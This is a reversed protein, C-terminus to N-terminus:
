LESKPSKEVFVWVKMVFFSMVPVAGAVFLTAVHTLRPHYQSAFQVVSFSIALGMISMISFKTFQSLRASRVGFTLKSQGLYSVVMGGLYAFVSAWEAPLSTLKLLANALVLYTLTAFVGVTAFKTLLNRKLRM